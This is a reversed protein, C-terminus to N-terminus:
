PLKWVWICVCTCAYMISAREFSKMGFYSGCGYVVEGALVSPTDNGQELRLWRLLRGFYYSDLALWIFAGIVVGVTLGYKPFIWVSFGGGAAMCAAFVLWRNIM